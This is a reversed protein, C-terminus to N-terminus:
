GGKRSAAAAAIAAEPWSVQTQTQPNFVGGDYQAAEAAAIEEATLFESPSLAFVDLGRSIETAYIRGNYWYASWYGGTILQDADVPGRDFYAIEFPNEADTFDIVSIGGQYWAQVFIDRGPVPIISGNHAVCNEVDSQPAPLKYLSRFALKGDEIAYIANAGWTMPDGAQCRPRGGGGWEDTFLVKTGDNNFTASHWYAFGTDTVDDLRKPALPDAIDLIIGNGSCAGAALNLSPFVTIDHCQDTVRTEQTGEGHDGGRWLGAIRGDQAFIRPSDVIRAAAPDALPIEIVDISFLATNDGGREFCGPLERDDRVYSTGSNYVVLRQDDASVISHTHSGRCTQVQGVQRPRTVDSIDFIRLGRFREDSINSEIGQLGCDKRARSDQVSMLLLDGAISVDGQGGPCVISSALQPIGDDGLRYVNFGHYNGAVLLDGSFAMDTNAFSLLSGREGFRPNGDEDEEERIDPRATDVLDGAEDAEADEAIRPALQAPNEPDYFGTPKPLAAVLRLNSIAEEADRFGAALNARPDDSLEALIANMRDIEAQQEKVLDNTFEFMVPDYATGPQDHLTEVMDIAGGHHRVMLQLFLRDFATSELTGLEAVQAPTAMGMMLHHAAHDMGAHHQMAAPQGREALWERMFAIEDAQSADIRGAIAVIDSNNSRGEVLAALDVAQQHHVIMDQMFKVDAPSFRTDSLRTAEDEDIVRPAAGPAGPLVIPAQQALATTATSLLLGAALTRLTPTM